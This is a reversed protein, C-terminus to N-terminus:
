EEAIADLWLEDDISVGVSPLFYQMDTYVVPTSSACGDGWSVIGVLEFIGEDNRVVIPGGSDGQCADKTNNGDEGACLMGEMISGNFFANQCDEFSMIPLDAARLENTANGGYRDQGWGSVISTNGVYGGLGSKPPCIPWVGISYTLNKELTLVALDNEFSLTENFDPHSSINMVGIYEDYDTTSDLQHAGVRVSLDSPIIGEVCHAATIIHSADAIVGGCVHSGLLQLSVLWPYEHEVVEWGGVNMTENMATENMAPRPDGADAVSSNGCNEEGWFVDPSLEAGVVSVVLAIVTIRL